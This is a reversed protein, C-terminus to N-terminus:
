TRPYDVIGSGSFTRTIISMASHTPLQSYVNGNASYFTGVEYTVLILALGHVATPCFHFVKGRACWLSIYEVTICGVYLLIFFFIYLPLVSKRAYVADAIYFNFSVMLIAVFILILSVPRLVRSLSAIRIKNRFSSNYVGMFIDQVTKQNCLNNHLQAILFGNLVPWIWRLFGIRHTNQVLIM